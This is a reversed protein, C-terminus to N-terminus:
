TRRGAVSVSRRSAPCGRSRSPSRTTPCSASTKPLSRRKKVNIASEIGRRIGTVTIVQAGDATTAGAQQAFGAGPLAWLTAVAAAVPTARLLSRGIQRQAALTKNM